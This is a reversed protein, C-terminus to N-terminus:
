YENIFNNLIVKIKSIDKLVDNLTIEALSKL